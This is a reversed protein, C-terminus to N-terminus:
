AACHEADPWAQNPQLWQITMGDELVVAPANGARIREALLNFQDRLYDRQSSTLRGPVQLILMGGPPMDCILETM